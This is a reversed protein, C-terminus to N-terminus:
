YALNRFTQPPPDIIRTGNAEIELVALGREVLGSQQFRFIGDLGRFGSPDTLSRIDFAPRDGSGRQALVSALAVADYSLTALRPPPEGFIDEYSSEFAARSQPAPAAYWAGLMGPVRWTNPEDWLGTGLLKVQTPDVEYFPLLPSLRGLGIGGEAMMIAQYPLAGETQRIALREAARRSAEDGSAELLEKRKELAQRRRDYDTFSRVPASLDASATDYRAIRTLEGQTAALLETMATLVVTGYQSEPLLAGFTEVGQSQAYTMVRRVQARPSFGMVFCNEGALSGDTTFAITNIRAIKTVKCAEAVAPAFLPGLVLEAGDAVAQETALKAGEATGATDRPLLEFRPSAIDSLAMQASNLLAHGLTENQGSLPLLLAVRVTRAKDDQDRRDRDTVNSDRIDASQREDGRQASPVSPRQSPQDGVVVTQTCATLGLCLLAVNYLALRRVQGLFIQLSM